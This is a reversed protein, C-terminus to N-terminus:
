LFFRLPDGGGASAIGEGQQDCAREIPRPINLFRICEAPLLAMAQENAANLVAPMASGKGVLAMLWAWAPINGHM